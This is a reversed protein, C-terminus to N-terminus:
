NEMRKPGSKKKALDRGVLVSIKEVFGEKGLPRGTREHM